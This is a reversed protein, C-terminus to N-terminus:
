LLSVHALKLCWRGRQPVMSCYQSWPLCCLVTLEINHQLARSPSTCVLRIGLALNKSVTCTCISMSWCLETSLEIQNQLNQLTLSANTRLIEPRRSQVAWPGCASIPHHGCSRKDSLHSFAFPVTKEQLQPNEYM